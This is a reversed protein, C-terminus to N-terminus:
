DSYFVLDSIYINSYIAVSEIRKQQLTLAAEHKLNFAVRKDLTAINQSLKREQVQLQFENQTITKM